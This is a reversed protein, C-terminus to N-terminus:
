GPKKEEERPPSPPVDVVKPAPAQPPEQPARVVQLILARIDVTPAPNGAQGTYGAVDGLWRRNAVRDREYQAEQAARYATEVMMPIKSRSLAKGEAVDLVCEGALIATRARAHDPNGELWHDINERKCRALTLATEEDEGAQLAALYRIIWPPARLPTTSSPSPQPAAPIVQSALEKPVPSISTDM